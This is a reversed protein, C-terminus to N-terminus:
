RPASGPPRAPVDAPRVIEVPEDFGWLDMRVIATEFRCPRGGADHYLDVTGVVDQEDWRGLQEYLEPPLLPGAARGDFTLTAHACPRGGIEAPPGPEVSTLYADVVTRLTGPDAYPPRESGGDPVGVIRLDPFPVNAALPYRHQYLWGDRGDWTEWLDDGEGYFRHTRGDQGGVATAEFRDDALDLQGTTVLDHGGGVTTSYRAHEFLDTLPASLLRVAVERSFAPAAPDAPSTTSGPAADTTTPASTASGNPAPAAATTAPGASTATGGGSGCAAVTTAVVLVTAAIRFWRRTRDWGMARADRM